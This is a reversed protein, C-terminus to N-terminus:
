VLLSTMALDQRSQDLLTSLRDVYEGQIISTFGPPLGTWPFSRVGQDARLLSRGSNILM